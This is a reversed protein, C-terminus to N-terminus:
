QSIRYKLMENVLATAPLGRSNIDSILKDSVPRSMEYFKDKESQPMTYMLVDNAMFTSVADRMYKSFMDNFLVQSSTSISNFTEKIDEPLMKWKSENVAIAGIGCNYDLRTCYKSITYKKLTLVQSFGSLESTVLGKELANYTETPTINVPKSGVAKMVMGLTKSRPIRIDINKLDDVTKIQNRISFLELGEIWVPFLVYLGKWDMSLYNSFISNLFSLSRDTPVVFPLEVLMSLPLDDAYIGANIFAIDSIGTKLMRVEEDVKGLTEGFHTSIKLKGHSKEEMERAYSTMFNAVVDTPLNGQASFKLQIVGPENSYSPPVTTVPNCTTGIIALLVFIVALTYGVAGRTNQYLPHWKIM